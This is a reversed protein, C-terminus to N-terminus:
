PKCVCCYGQQIGSLFQVTCSGTNGTATCRSSSDAYSQSVIRSSGNCVSSCLVRSNGSGCTATVNVGAPGAPGVPGQIGQIGQPGQPGTAGTPGTLGQDGKDGKPGPPGTPGPPGILGTPSGVWRGLADIITTGNIAVAGAVDLKGQPSTTGIGVNGSTDILLRDGGVPDYISFSDSTDGRVGLLYARSDNVIRIWANVDAFPNEFEAVYDGTSKVHLKSTPSTTGIGINGSNMFSAITTGGNFEPSRIDLSGGGNHDISFDYNGDDHFLIRRNGGSVSISGAVELQETPSTTGIGVKGGGLVLQNAGAALGDGPLRLLGTMTDGAKAVYNASGMAPAFATPSQGSLLSANGAHIAYPVSTLPQRPALTIYADASGNTRVAIQLWRAAGDFVASGFNLTVGFLGGSVPVPALTNTGGLANGSSAADFLVFQLDYNGSALNTGDNLRGQYTFATNQAQMTPTLFALLLLTLFPPPKM